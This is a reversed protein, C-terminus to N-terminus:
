NEVRVIKRTAVPLRPAPTNSDPKTIQGAFAIPHRIPQPVVPLSKQRPQETPAPKEYFLFPLADHLVAMKEPSLFDPAARLAFAGIIFAISAMVFFSRFVRRIM